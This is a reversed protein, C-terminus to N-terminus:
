PIYSKYNFRRKILSYDIHLTRLAYDRYSKCRLKYIKYFGNLAIEEIEKYNKRCLEKNNPIDKQLTKYVICTLYGLSGALNLNLKNINRNRDKTTLFWPELEFSKGSLEQVKKTSTELIEKREPEWKPCFGIIHITNEPKGENCFPCIESPYLKKIRENEFDTRISSIKRRM